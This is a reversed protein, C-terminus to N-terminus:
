IFNQLIGKTIRDAQSDAQRGPQSSCARWWIPPRPLPGPWAVMRPLRSGPAPCVPFEWFLLLFFFDTTKVFTITESPCEIIELNSIM